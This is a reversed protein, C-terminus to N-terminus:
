SISSIMCSWHQDSCWIMFGVALGDELRQIANEQVLLNVSATNTQYGVLWYVPRWLQTCNSFVWSLLSCHWCKLPGKIFTGIFIRLVNIVRDRLLIITKEPLDRTKTCEGKLFEGGLFKYHKTETNCFIQTSTLLSTTSSLKLRSLGGHSSVPRRGGGSRWSDTMLFTCFLHSSTFVVLFLLVFIVVTVMLDALQDRMTQWKHCSEEGGSNHIYVGREIM